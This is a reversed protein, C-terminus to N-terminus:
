GSCFIAIVVMTKPLCVECGDIPMETRSIVQFIKRLCKVFAVHIQHYVDYDIVECIMTGSCRNIVTSELWEVTPFVKVLEAENGVIIIRDISLLAPQTVVSYSKRIKVCLLLLNLGIVIPPDRLHNCIVGTHERSGSM